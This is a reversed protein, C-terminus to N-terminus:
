AKDEDKTKPRKINLTLVFEKADKEKKSKTKAKGKIETLKSRTVWKDHNIKRMLTSVQTNSEAFGKLEIKHGKREISNIQVGDPIINVMSDFLHVSLPRNTQLEQIVNMRAIMNEKEAKLTQIRKIRKNLISIEHDLIRNRKKQNSITNNFGMHVCLIIIATAVLGAGLVVLFHKQKEERLQERWPLLNINTM